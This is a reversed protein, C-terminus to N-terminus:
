QYRIGLHNTKLLFLLLLIVATGIIAIINVIRQAKVSDKLVFVISKFILLGIIGGLTNNIIDTMDFAGIRLIFQLGEIVSSATFFFFVNKLFGWKKFIIGAYIGSPIFIVINLILEPLDVKTNPILFDNYPMLNVKREAMYSFKVGLKFMLIWVLVILYIAFLAKTIKDSM